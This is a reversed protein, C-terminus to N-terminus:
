PATEVRVIDKYPNGKTTLKASLTYYATWSVEYEPNTIKGDRM